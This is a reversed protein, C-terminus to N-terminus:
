MKCWLRVNKYGMNKRIKPGQIHDLAIIHKTLNEPMNFIMQLRVNSMKGLVWGIGLFLVKFFEFIWKGFVEM